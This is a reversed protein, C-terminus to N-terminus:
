AQEQHILSESLTEVQVAAESYESGHSNHLLRRRYINSVVFLSDCTYTATGLGPPTSRPIKQPPTGDADGFGSGIESWFVAM